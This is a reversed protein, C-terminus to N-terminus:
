SHSSESAWIFSTACGASIARIEISHGLDDASVENWVGNVNGDNDIKEGCNGHEGWGWCLVKGEDTLALVHESGIAMQQISPIGPPVRQGRDNRGWSLVTGDGGLVFISGWSAGVDKWKAINEPATSKIQWKDSGIILLQGADSPGLLCTFETGCVARVIHFSVGEIKRPCWVVEAPEGIQGKRGNGWGYADGNALVVVTHSVSSSIDVIEIGHSNFLSQMPSVSSSTVHYGLGIEGKSGSGVAYIDNHQDVFFTAEWTSSCLKIKTEPLIELKTFGSFPKGNLSADSSSTNPLTGAQYVDGSEFLTHTRSGEATVMLPRPFSNPFAAVVEDNSSVFCQKPKSADECDGIGLQGSGNSGFGYLHM